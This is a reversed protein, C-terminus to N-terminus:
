RAATMHRFLRAVNENIEDILENTKETIYTFGVLCPIAVIIGFATTNMAISIGSTLLTAKEAADAHAVAAFSSILGFITGLLGLLTAVNAIMALYHTRKELKPIEVMATLEMANQISAPSNNLEQLGAKAINPLAADSINCYDIARNINGSKILEAIKNVFLESDIRNKFQIYLVREIITVIGLILAFLIVFMVPGGTVFFRIISDM